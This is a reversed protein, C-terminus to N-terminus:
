NSYIGGGGSNGGGGGGFGGPLPPPVAGGTTGGGDTTGGPSPTVPANALATNVVQMIQNSLAPNAQIAGQAIQNAVEALTVVGDDPDVTAKGDTPGANPYRGTNQVMEMASQVIEVANEPDEKVAQFVADRVQEPTANSWDVGTPFNFAPAAVAASVMLLLPAAVSLFGCMSFSRLFNM